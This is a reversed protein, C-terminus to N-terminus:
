RLPVSCSPSLWPPPTSSCTGEPGRVLPSPAPRSSPPWCGRRYWGHSGASPDPCSELTPAGDLRVPGGLTSLLQSSLRHGYGRRGGGGGGSAEVAPRHPVLRGGALSIRM